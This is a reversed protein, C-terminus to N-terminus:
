RDHPYEDDDGGVEARQELADAIPVEDDVIELVPSRDPSEAAEPDVVDDEPALPDQPAM